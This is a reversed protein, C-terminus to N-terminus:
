EDTHINESHMSRILHELTGSSVFPALSHLHYMEIRIPKASALITDLMNRDMTPAVSTLVDLEIQTFGAAKRQESIRAGVQALEIM